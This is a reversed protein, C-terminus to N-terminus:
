LCHCKPIKSGGSRCFVSKNGESHFCRKQGPALCGALELTVREEGVGEIHIVGATGAAGSKTFDAKLLMFRGDLLLCTVCMRPFVREQGGGGGVGLENSATMWHLFTRGM